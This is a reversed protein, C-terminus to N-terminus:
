PWAPDPRGRWVWAIYDVLPPTAGLGRLQTAVQGRHHATHAYVQVITEGLTTTAPELGLQEEVHASWPLSVAAGLEQSSISALHAAAVAHGERAWAALEVLDLGEGAHPDIPQGRWIAVFVHQVLHIHHLRERLTTDDPAAELALAAMWISADAWAMHRYLDVLWGLVGAADPAGRRGGSM